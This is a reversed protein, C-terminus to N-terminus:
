PDTLKAYSLKPNTSNCKDDILVKMFCLKVVSSAVLVAAGAAKLPGDMRILKICVLIIDNKHDHGVTASQCFPLFHHEYEPQVKYSIQPHTETRKAIWRNRQLWIVDCYITAYM